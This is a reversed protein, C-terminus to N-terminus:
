DASIPQRSQWPCDAQHEQLDSIARQLDIHKRAAIRTSVRFFTASRAELYSSNRRELIRYLERCESCNMFIEQEERRIAGTAKMDLASLIKARTARPAAILSLMSPSSQGAEAGRPQICQQHLQVTNCYAITGLFARGFYM